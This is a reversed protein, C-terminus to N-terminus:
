LLAIKNSYATQTGYAHKTSLSAVLHHKTGQSLTTPLHLGGHPYQFHFQIKHFLLQAIEGAGSIAYIKLVAQSSLIQAICINLCTSITKYSIYQIFHKFLVFSPFCIYTTFSELIIKFGQYM